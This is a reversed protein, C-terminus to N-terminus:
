IFIEKNLKNALDTAILKYHKLIYEYDLLNGNTYDNNKSVEIIKEFTAEKNKDACWFFKKMLWYM